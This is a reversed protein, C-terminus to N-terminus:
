EHPSEVDRYIDASDIERAIALRRRLEDEIQAENLEPFQAGIASRMFACNEDFLRPGDLIKEEMSRAKARAVKDLFIADILPQYDETEDIM